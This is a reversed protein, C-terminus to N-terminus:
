DKACTCFLNRDGYPNNVRGVYPWFKNQTTYDLPFAAKERSYPHNWESAIHRATHPANKLVNNKNDTQQNEIEIFEKKIQIMAECFRNLEDLSESETPEIMLTGRVPWSMTPAHFGYDILRKAVDEVDVGARKPWDRLDIICEHAVFGNKGTYLVSYHESLRKAIYNANLIAVQSAKKLGEYGMMLIYMWSIPLISASGFPSASILGISDKSNGLTKQPLYKELHKKVLVPGVGPGGGGHPICFTKHLNLHCVDIGYDAPYCLGLQANMNAGDLYIQGGFKHIVNCIDLINEEFVGHTSPYTIMIAALNTQHQKAVSKLHDIDINGDKDCEVEVVKLGAMIASAPNTGHASKPILCIDRNEGKEQYYKKIILLGAYEGQSGANPQLSAAEFGTIKCLLHELESIIELYGTAQTQEVFPHIDSFKPWSVPLMEATANLKMTCSGLPIMSHILSLDRSQLKNIYRLMKTESHYSNFVKHTMFKTTRAYAKDIEENNKKLNIKKLDFVKLINDIDKTTENLSIALMNKNILRFNIKNDNAKESIKQAYKTKITLTDFHAKTVIDFSEKLANKLRSTLKHIRFAINKLGQPGHYVAYMSAMIALLAQATCINSTARDRRIHQERTQISLRLATNDHIDKSIGVIRGPIKRKYKEKTALYAAHPGGYGIPVGFRQTNGVVVDAGLEGPPKFLTLALLDAIFITKVNHEQAQKLMQDYTDINGYTDPYQIIIAFYKSLDLKDHNISKIDLNINIPKLRTSLVKLTQPHLADSVLLNNPLKPDFMMNVAETAACAEDLLSANAIDMATLECVMTQFNLLAELRGQAIESQYPTYQTYWGPNELINRLIVKPIITPYYGMGIYDEYLINKNSKEKAYALADSESMPPLDIPKNNLISSPITKQVLEELNSLSLCDLMAAIEKEDPGIHRDVFRDM